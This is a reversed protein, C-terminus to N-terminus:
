TLQIKTTRNILKLLILLEKKELAVCGLTPKYEKTLHIFIASGKGIKTKKTNYNIPILFDYKSDRRYLKEHLVNKRVKILKNYYKKSNIDNCWGMNKKIPVCKIKTLPKPNRDNRYLLNGLTYTGTPTKKDGEVKSKALGNKGIACRFIFDDFLLTAKNKLIITM